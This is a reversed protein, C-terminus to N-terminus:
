SSRLCFHPGCAAPHHQDAENQHKHHQQLFFSSLSDHFLFLAAFTLSFSSSQITSLETSRSSVVNLIIRNTRLCLSCLIFLYLIVFVLYREHKEVSAECISYNEDVQQPEEAQAAESAIAHKFICGSKWGQRGRLRPTKVGFAGYLEGLLHMSYSYLVITDQHIYVM